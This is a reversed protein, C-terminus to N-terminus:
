LGVGVVGDACMVGVGVWMGCVCVCWCWFKLIVDVCM